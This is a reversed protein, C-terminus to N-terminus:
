QFFFNNYGRNYFGYPNYGMGYPSPTNNYTFQIFANDSIKYNLEANSIRVQQGIDNQGFSNSGGFPSHFFSVDVRATMKDSLAMQMTNTYANVSQYNGGFSGFNMSYSHSMEIKNFFSTLKAQVTPSQSNIIPGRYDFPTSVDGRLQADANFSIAFTLAFIFILTKKMIM